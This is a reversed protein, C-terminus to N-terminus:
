GLFAWAALARLTTRATNVQWIGNAGYTHGAAGNLISTWFMFREVEQRSAELIGEYCVEGVLVPM